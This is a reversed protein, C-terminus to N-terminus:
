GPKRASGLAQAIADVTANLRDFGAGYREVRETLDNVREDGQALREHVREAFQDALRNVQATTEASEPPETVGRLMFWPPVKCAEGITLLEEAPVKRAGAETRKVTALAVGIAGALEAQSMGAWARAARCRRAHEAREEKQDTAM